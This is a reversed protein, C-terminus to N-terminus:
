FAGMVVALVLVGVILLASWFPMLRWGRGLVRILYEDDTEDCRKRDM